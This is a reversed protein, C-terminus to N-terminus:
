QSKPEFDLSTSNICYRQGTPLPGDDFLHGLHAGCNSCTVETRRMGFSNDESLTINDDNNSKSFSPWGCGANYKDVSGFLEVGCNICHYKGNEYFDDYKGTFPAETGKERTVHYQEPTLKDKWYEDPKNKLESM